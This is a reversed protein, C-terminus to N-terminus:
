LPEPMVYPSSIILSLHNPALNIYRGLRGVDGLDSQLSWSVAEDRLLLQAGM